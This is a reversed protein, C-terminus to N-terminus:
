WETKSPRRTSPRDQIILELGLLNALGLLRDVTLTGPNAEIESLRNQSIALKAALARQSLKAARRRTALIQGLQASHTLVQEM